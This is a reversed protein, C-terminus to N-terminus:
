SLPVDCFQRTEGIGAGRRFHWGQVNTENYDNRDTFTKAPKQAKLIKKGPVVLRWKDRTPFNELTPIMTVAYQLIRSSDGFQQDRVQQAAMARDRDSDNYYLVFRRNSNNGYGPIGKLAANCRACAANITAADNASESTFKTSRAVSNPSADAASSLLAYHIEAWKTYYADRALLAVNAMRALDRTEIAEDTIGVAMSYREIDFTQKTGSMGGVSPSEGEAMKKLSFGRQVDGITAYYTGPNVVAEDFVTEFALDYDEEGEFIMSLQERATEAFDKTTAYAGLMKARNEYFIERDINPKLLFGSFSRELMAALKVQEERPCPNGRPKGDIIERGFHVKQMAALFAAENGPKCISKGPEPRDEPKEWVYLDLKTLTNM